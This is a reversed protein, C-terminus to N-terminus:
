PCRAPSDNAFADHLPIHFKANRAAERAAERLGCHDVMDARFMEATGMVVRIEARDASATM